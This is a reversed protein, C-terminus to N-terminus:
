YKPFNKKLIRTKNNSFTRAVVTAAVLLFYINM